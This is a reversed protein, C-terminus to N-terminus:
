SILGRLRLKEKGIDEIKVDISEIGDVDYGLKRYHNVNFKNLEVKIKETLIM